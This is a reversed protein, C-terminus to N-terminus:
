TLYISPVSSSYSARFGPYKNTRKDARYTITMVNGSSVHNSFPASAQGCYKGLRKSGSGPGDSVLLSHHTCDSDEELQPHCLFDQHQVMLTRSWYVSRSKPSHWHLWREKQLWWSGHANLIRGLVGHLFHLLWREMWRHPDLELLPAVVFLRRVNLILSSPSRSDMGSAGTLTPWSAVMSITHMRSRVLNKEEMREM